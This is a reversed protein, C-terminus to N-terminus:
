VKACKKKRRNETEKGIIGLIKNEKSNSHQLLWVLNQTAEEQRIYFSIDLKYGMQSKVVIGVSFHTLLVLNELTIYLISQQLIEAWVVTFQNQIIHSYKIKPTVTSQYRQKILNYAAAASM